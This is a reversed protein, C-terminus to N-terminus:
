EGAFRADGGADLPETELAYAGGARGFTTGGRGAEVGALM